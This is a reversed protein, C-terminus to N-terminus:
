ERLRALAHSKVNEPLDSFTIKKGYPGRKDVYCWQSYGNPKDCNDSLGLAYVRGDGVPMNTVLTYREAYTPDDYVDTFLNTKPPM